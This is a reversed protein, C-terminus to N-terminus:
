QRQNARLSLEQSGAPSIHLDGAGSAKSQSSHPLARSLSAPGRLPLPGAPPVFAGAPQARPGPAAATPLSAARGRERECGRSARARTWEGAPGTRTDRVGGGAGDRGCRRQRSERRTQARAAAAAGETSARASGGSGASGSLGAGGAERPGWAGVHRQRLQRRLSAHGRWGGGREGAPGAAAGRARAGAPAGAVAAAAPPGAAAAEGPGTPARPRRGEDGLRGRLRQRGQRYQGRGEVQQRGM